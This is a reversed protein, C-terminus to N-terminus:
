PSSFLVRDQSTIGPCLHNRWRRERRETVLIDRGGLNVGVQHVSGKFLYEFSELGTLGVLPIGHEDSGGNAVGLQGFLQPGARRTAM